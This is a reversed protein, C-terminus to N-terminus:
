IHNSIGNQPLFRVCRATPGDFGGAPRPMGRAIAVDVIGADSRIGEAVAAQQDQRQSLAQQLIRVQEVVLSTTDEAQHKVGLELDSLLLNVDELAVDM